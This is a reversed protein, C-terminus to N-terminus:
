SIHILSRHVCERDRNALAVLVNFPKRELKLRRDGLWSEGTYPELRLPGRTIPRSGHHASRLVTLIRPLLIERDAGKAVYDSAGRDLGLVQDGVGVREATLMVVPFDTGARGLQLRELVELGDMEPMHLDTLVLDPAREQCLRLAERGNEAYLVKMDPRKSLLAGALHRDVPNDDVVLVTAM